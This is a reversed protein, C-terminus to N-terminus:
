KEPMQMRKIEEKLVDIDTTKYRNVVHNYESTAEYPIDKYLTEFSFHFPIYSGNLLYLDYIGKLNYAVIFFAFIIFKLSRRLLGSRFSDLIILMEGIMFVSLYVRIRFFIPFISGVISLFIYIIFSKTWFANEEKNEINKYNILFLIILFILLISPRGSFNPNFYYDGRKLKPFYLFIQELIRMGISIFFPVFINIIYISIYIRISKTDTKIIEFLPYIFFLVLSSKHFTTALCILLFYKIFKKEDIFHLSYIFISISISQRFASLYVPFFYLDLYLFMMMYFLKQPTVLKKLGKYILIANIGFILAKFQYFSFINNFFANLIGYGEEFSKTLNFNSFNIYPYLLEYVFYDNHIRYTLGSMSFFIILMIANTFNVIKKIKLCRLFCCFIIIIDMIIFITM